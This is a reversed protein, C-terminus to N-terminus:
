AVLRHRPVSMSRVGCSKVYRGIPVDLVVTGYVRQTPTDVPTAIPSSRRDDNLIHRTVVYRLAVGFTTSRRQLNLSASTRSDKVRTKNTM